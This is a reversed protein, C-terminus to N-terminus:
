MIGRHGAAEGGATGRRWAQQETEDERERRYHCVRMVDAPLNGTQSDQLAVHDIPVAPIRELEKANLVIQILEPERHPVHQVVVVRIRQRGPGLLELTYATVEVIRQRPLRFQGSGSASADLTIAQGVRQRLEPTRHIPRERERGAALLVGGAGLYRHRQLRSLRRQAGRDRPQEDLVVLRFLLRRLADLRDVIRDLALDVPEERCREDRNRRRAQIRDAGVAPEERLQSREGVAPALESLLQDGRTLGRQPVQRPLQVVLDPLNEGCNSGHETAGLPM